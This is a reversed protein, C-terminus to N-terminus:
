RVYYSSHHQALSLLGFGFAKASGIGEQWALQLKEPELVRLIGDFRVGYFPLAQKRAGGQGQWFGDSTAWVVEFGHLQGKRRLWAQAPTPEPLDSEQSVYDPLAIRRGQPQGARREKKTPNAVLRFRLLQSPTFSWSLSKTQVSLAYGAPLQNWDPASASQVLVTLRAQRHALPEMRFLVGHQTRYDTDAETSFARALTRHLEYPTASDRRAEASRPNLLLESLYM